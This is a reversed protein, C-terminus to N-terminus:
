RHIQMYNKPSIGYFKKFSKAFYNADNFGVAYAIEQIKLSKDKLLNVSEEMRVKNLYDSFTMGMEERFLHSLYYSSVFVNSSVVKLNIDEKFNEKIYHIANVLNKNTQKKSRNDYVIAMFVDMIESTLYCLDEFTTEQALIKNYMKIYEAMNELPAGIDVAARMLIATLEYLKAKIIDLDGSSFSFIEGLINNLIRKANQNDGTQVYAILEKEMDIPYKKLKNRQELINISAANRKKDILLEAIKRQQISIKNQQSLYKSEEKSIYNVILFLMQAASTMYDCDIQKINTLIKEIEINSLEKKKAFDKLEKIVLDDADWLLVPGCTISGVLKDDFIIPTSCKVMCGCKFIYPEGLEAAKETAYKINNNCTSKYNHNKLMECLSFDINNRYSLLEEGNIDYLAVDIGTLINFYKLMNMLESYDFIDKIQKDSIEIKM